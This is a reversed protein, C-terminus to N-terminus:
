LFFSISSLFDTAPHLNNNVKLSRRTLFIVIWPLLDEEEKGEEKTLRYKNHSQGRNGRGTRHM